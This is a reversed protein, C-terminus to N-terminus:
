KKKGGPKPKAVDEDDADDDFSEEAVGALEYFEYRLDASTKGITGTDWKSGDAFEARIFAPGEEQLFEFNFNFSPNVAQLKPSSMQRAFECASRGGAYDQYWAGIELKKVYKILDHAVQRPVRPAM